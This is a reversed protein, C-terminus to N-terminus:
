RGPDVTTNSPSEKVSPARNIRLVADDSTKKCRTGPDTLHCYNTFVAKYTGKDEPGVSTIVFSSGTEGDIAAGNKYWQLTPAPYGNGRVAIQFTSGPSLRNVVNDLLLSTMSLTITITIAFVDAFASHLFM